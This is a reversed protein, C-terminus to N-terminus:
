LVRRFIHDRVVFQHWLAAVAHLGVAIYVFTAGTEHIEKLLRSLPQNEQLPSYLDLGYFAIPKGAYLVTAIGLVPMALMLIYLVLHTLQASRQMWAAGPVPATAPLWARLFVRLTMLVLVAVGAAYHSSRMFLRGTSGRPFLDQVQIAAVALVVALLVLWHVYRLIAPYKDASM